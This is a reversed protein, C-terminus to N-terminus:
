LKGIERNFLKAAYFANGLWFLYYMCFVTMDETKCEGTIAIICLLVYLAYIMLKMLNSKQTTQFFKYIRILDLVQSKRSFILTM